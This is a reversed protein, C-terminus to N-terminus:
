PMRVVLRKGILTYSAYLRRGDAMVRHEVGPALKAAQRAAECATAATSGDYNNAFLQGNALLTYYSM